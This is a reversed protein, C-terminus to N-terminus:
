KFFDELKYGKQELKHKIKKLARQEIDAVSNRHIGIERGIDAYSQDYLKAEHNEKLKPM